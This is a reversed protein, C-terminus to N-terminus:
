VDLVERLRRSLTALSYPKELFHVGPELVGHRSIVNEGYGSMFLVRLGPRLERLRHAVERGNMGAMVVDTLLVQIPGEHDRAVSLAQEGDACSLVQYGLTALQEQAVERVAPEDEVLIVTEGHARARTKDHEVTAVQAEGEVRPLYLRVRTGSGPASEVDVVGRNQRVAGYVMALGLGTGSGAGKTTFFPEFIHPLVEPAMGIGTDAVELLVHPGAAASSHRQRFPGEAETDTLSLTLCGGDPMADRANATLNLIIQEIQGRDVKV